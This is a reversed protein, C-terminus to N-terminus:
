SSIEHFLSSWRPIVQEYDMAAAQAKARLAINTRLEPNEILQLVAKAMADSDNSQVLLGNDGDRVLWPVGGVKTSVVPLGSAMAEIVSVPTNDITTTNLFIDGSALLAPVESKPIGPLLTVSGTLGLGAAYDRVQSLSGDKDAGVMILSVEPYLERVKALCAIAMSPNYIKHFARLWILRIPAGSRGPTQYCAAQVPNPIVEIPYGLPMLADRLYGSPSVIRDARALIRRVRRPSKMAMAPLSGGHLTAVFRLNCQRLTWSTVDALHLALGGYVDLHAAHYFNRNRLVTLLTEALRRLRGPHRSSFDVEWGYDQLRLGIDESIARSGSSSPLFTGLFLLAKGNMARGTM